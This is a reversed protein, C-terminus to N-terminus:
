SSSAPAVERRITLHRVYLAVLALGVIAAMEMYRWAKGDAAQSLAGAALPGVVGGSSWIGVVFGFVVASPIQARGAADEVYPLAVTAVFGRTLGVIFMTMAITAVTPNIAAPTFSVAEGIVGACLLTTGVVRIKSNGIAFGMIVFMGVGIGQVWGIGASSLGLRDLDFSALVVGGTGVIASLFMGATALVIRADRVSARMGGALHPKGEPDPAVSHPSLILPPLCAAQLVGLLWFPASLSVAGALVGFLPPGLALGLSLAVIIASLGSRTPREKELRTLWEPGGVWMVGFALGFLLRNLYAMPAGPVLPLAVTMLASLALGGIMMREVGLRQVLGAIPVTVVVLVCAPLAIFLSAAATSIGLRDAFTSLLPFM